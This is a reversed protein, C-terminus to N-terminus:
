GTRAVARHDNEIASRYFDVTARAITEPAFRARCDEWGARGLTAAKAPNDLLSQVKNTLDDIDDPDALLGNKEHHVIEPIGGVNTAVLPSGVALAETCVVGFTEYRSFVLTVFCQRRLPGIEEPTLAGYFCIRNRTEPSIAADIFSKWSGTTKAGIEIGCDPGVFHLRLEPDKELLREFVRVVLDGGKRWETRGVFLIDSRNCSEASWIDGCESVKVPNPLIKRFPISLDYHRLASDMVDQSPATIATASKIGTGERENRNLDRTLNSPGDYSSNLFYPGHLRVVVPISVNHAVAACWGYTEEMEIIDIGERRTLDQFTAAIADSSARYFAYSPNLRRILRNSLRRSLSPTPRRIKIVHSDDIPTALTPTVIFVEHGLARVAETLVTLYSVIGNPRDSQPWSPAFYAIKM